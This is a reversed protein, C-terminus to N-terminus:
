FIKLYQNIAACRKQDNKNYEKLVVLSKYANILEKDLSTFGMKVDEEVEDFGYNPYQKDLYKLVNKINQNLCQSRSQIVMSM